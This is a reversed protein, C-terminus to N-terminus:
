FLLLLDLSIDHPETPLPRKSLQEIFGIGISQTANSKTELLRDYYGKGHGLRHNVEDFALGPVLITSITSIEVQKSVFPNPEFIGWQNPICQIELSHIPYILLDNGQIRPLFLQNKQALFTNLKQTSIENQFSFFSLIKQSSFSPTTFRDFLQDEAEACRKRSISERVQKWENRLENKM